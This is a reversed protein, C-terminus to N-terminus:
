AALAALIADAGIPKMLHGDFGAMAVQQGEAELSFQLVERADADDEIILIRPNV